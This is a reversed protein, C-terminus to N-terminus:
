HSYKLGFQILRAPIATGTIQTFTSPTGINVSSPTTFIRHNFVNFVDMSFQFSHSEALSFSRRLSLDWNQQYPARWANRILRAGPM